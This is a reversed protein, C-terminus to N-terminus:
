PKELEQCRAPEDCPLNRLGKRIIHHKAARLDIVRFRGETDDIQYIIENLRIAGSHLDSWAMDM